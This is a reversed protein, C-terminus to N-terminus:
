TGKSESRIYGALSFDEETMWYESPHPHQMTLKIQSRGNLMAKHSVCVPKYPWHNLCIIEGVKVNDYRLIEMTVTKRENSM